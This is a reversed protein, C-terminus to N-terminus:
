ALTTTGQFYDRLQQNHDHALEEQPLHTPSFARVEAIEGRDQIQMEGQVTVAVAICISHLRPDRHPSSYVGVLRGIEVLELGTEELLERQITTAIDEGWDVMGGPLSWCGNDQRRVLVIQGDNLTAILSVGTVPHRFLIGLVSQTFQWWRRM